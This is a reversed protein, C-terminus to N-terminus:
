PVEGETYDTTHFYGKEKRVLLFRFPWLRAAVKLRVAAAERMFGKTEHLELTGDNRIVMFDPCFWAGKGLPLKLAEYHWERILGGVRKAELEEAYSAELRNMGAALSRRIAHAVVRTM